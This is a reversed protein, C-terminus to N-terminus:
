DGGLVLHVVYDRTKTTTYRTTPIHSVVLVPFLSYAGNRTPLGRNEAHVPLFQRYEGYDTRLGRNGALCSVWRVTVLFVFLVIIQANRLRSDAGYALAM